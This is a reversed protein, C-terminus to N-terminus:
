RTQVASQRAPTWMATTAVRKTAIVGASRSIMAPLRRREVALAATDDHQTAALPAHAWSPFRVPAPEADDSAVAIIETGEDIAPPMSIRVPKSPTAGYCAALFPLCLAVSKM